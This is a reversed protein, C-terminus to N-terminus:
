EDDSMKKCQNKAVLLVVVGLAIAGLFAIRYPMMNEVIKQGELYDVVAYGLMLLGFFIEILAYILKYLRAGKESFDKLRDESRGGLSGTVIIKVGTFIVFIGLAVFLISIIM